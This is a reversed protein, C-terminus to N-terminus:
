LRDVQELLSQPRDFGDPSVFFLSKEVADLLLPGQDSHIFVGELSKDPLKEVAILAKMLVDFEDLDCHFMYAEVASLM